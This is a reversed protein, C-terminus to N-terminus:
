QEQREVAEEKEALAICEYSCFYGGTEPDEIRWGICVKNYCDRRECKKPGDWVDCTRCYTRACMSCQEAQEWPIRDGCSACTTYRETLEM